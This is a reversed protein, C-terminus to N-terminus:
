HGAGVATDGGIGCALQARCSSMQFIMKQMLWTLTRITASM